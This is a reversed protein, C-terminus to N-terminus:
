QDRGLALVAMSATIPSSSSTAIAATVAASSITPTSSACRRRGAVRLANDIRQQRGDRHLRVVDLHGLGVGGQERVRARLSTGPARVIEEDCGGGAGTGPGDCGGIGGSEVLEGLDPDSKKGGITSAAARRRM